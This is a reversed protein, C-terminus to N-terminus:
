INGVSATTISEVKRAAEAVKDFPWQAVQKDTVEPHESRISSTIFSIMGSMLSTVWWQDYRIYGMSPTKGSLEKVEEPKIKQIDLANAIIARQGGETDPLAPCNAVIWRRLRKTIPISSVDFAVKQPLDQLDWRAVEELKRLILEDGKGNGLLDANKSFTELYQRKYFSLAERELDCLHQAVVPRLKFTDKGVEITECAALIRAERDGSM